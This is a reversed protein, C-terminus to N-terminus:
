ESVAKVLKLVEVMLLVMVVVVSGNVEESVLGSVTRLTRLAHLSSRTTNCSAMLCGSSELSGAYLAM